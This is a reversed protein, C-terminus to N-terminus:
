IVGNVTANRSRTFVEGELSKGIMLFNGDIKEALIFDQSYIMRTMEKKIDVGRAKNPTWYRMAPSTQFDRGEIIVSM